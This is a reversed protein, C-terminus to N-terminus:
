RLRANASSQCSFRMRTEVTIFRVSAPQKMAAMRTGTQAEDLKKAADRLHAESLLDYRDSARLDSHRSTNEFASGLAGNMRTLSAFTHRLDHLRFDVIGECECARILAVTVQASTVSPFLLGREKLKGEGTTSLVLLSSENISNARRFQGVESM